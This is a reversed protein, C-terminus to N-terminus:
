RHLVQSLFMALVVAGAPTLVCIGVVVWTAASQQWNRIM